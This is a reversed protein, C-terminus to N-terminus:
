TTKESTPLSIPNSSEPTKTWVSSSQINFWERVQKRILKSTLILDNFSVNGFINDNTGWDMYLIGYVFVAAHFTLERLATVEMLLVYLSMDGMSNAQCRQDMQATDM